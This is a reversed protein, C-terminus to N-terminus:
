RVRRWSDPDQRNHRVAAVVVGEAREQYILSYTFRRLLLRRKDGDFPAGIQPYLEILDLAHEVDDIFARGLEVSQLSYYQLVELYEREAPSLFLPRL